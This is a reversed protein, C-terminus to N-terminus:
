CSSPLPPERIKFSIKDEGPIVPLTRLCPVMTDGVYSYEVLDCYIYVFFLNGSGGFPRTAEYERPKMRFGIYEGLAFGLLRALQKNRDSFTVACRPGVTM